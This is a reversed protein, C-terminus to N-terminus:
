DNGIGLKCFDIWLECIFRILFECSLIIMM